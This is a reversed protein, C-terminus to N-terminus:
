RHGKIQPFISQFFEEMFANRFKRINSPIDDNGFCDSVFKYLYVPVGFRRCVQVVAAGEMDVLQAQESLIGREEDTKVPHDQTALKLATRGPLIDPIYTEVGEEKLLPRDAEVVKDVPHCSGLELGQVTAGAAGINCVVAPNFRSLLFATASAANIKGIGSIILLTNERKYLPFPSDSVKFFGDELLPATELETAAHLATILQTM